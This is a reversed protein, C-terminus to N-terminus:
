DTRKVWISFYLSAPVKPSRASTAVQNIEVVSGVIVQSDRYAWHNTESVPDRSM